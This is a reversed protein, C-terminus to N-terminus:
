KNYLYNRVFRPWQRKFEWQNMEKEMKKKMRELYESSGETIGTLGVSYNTSKRKRIKQRYYELQCHKSCFNKKQKKVLSCKKEFEKECQPCVILVRRKFSDHQCKRSCFIQVKKNTIYKNKCFKCTKRM